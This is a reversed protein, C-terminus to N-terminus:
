FFTGLPKCIIGADESNRLNYTCLTTRICEYVSNEKGNCGLNDLWVAGTGDGYYARLVAGADNGCNM